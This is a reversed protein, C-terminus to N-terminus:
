SSIILIYALHICATCYVHQYLEPSVFSIGHIDLGAVATAHQRIRPVEDNNRWGTLHIDTGTQWPFRVGCSGLFGHYAMVILM